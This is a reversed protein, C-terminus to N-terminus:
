LKINGKIIEPAIMLVISHMPKGCGGIGAGGTGTSMTHLRAAPVTASLPSPPLPPQLHPATAVVGVMAVVVAVMAAAAAAAMVAVVVAAAAVVSAAASVVAVAVM